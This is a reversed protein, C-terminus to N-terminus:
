ENCFHCPEMPCHIPNVVEVLFDLLSLILQVACPIVVTLAYTVEFTSVCQSPYEFFFDSISQLHDGGPHCLTPTLFM